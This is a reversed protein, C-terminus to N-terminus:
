LFFTCPTTHRWIAALLSVELRTRWRSHKTTGIEIAHLVGDFGRSAPLVSDSTHGRRECEQNMILGAM